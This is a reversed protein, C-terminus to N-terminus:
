HNSAKRKEVPSDDVGTSGPTEAEKAKTRAKATVEGQVLNMIARIKALQAPDMEALEKLANYKETGEKIARGGVVVDSEWPSRGTLLYDTTVGFYEAIKILTDGGPLTGRDMCNKLTQYPIGSLKSFEFLSLGELDLREQLRKHFEKTESM